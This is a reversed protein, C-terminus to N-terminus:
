ESKVPKSQSDTLTLIETYNYWWCQKIFARTMILVCFFLRLVKMGPWTHNCMGILEDSPLIISVPRSWMTVKLSVQTKWLLNRYWAVLLPNHHVIIIDCTKMRCTRDRSVPLWLKKYNKESLINCLPFVHPWSTIIKWEFKNLTWKHKM